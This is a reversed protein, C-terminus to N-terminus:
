ATGIFNCNDGYNRNLVTTTMKRFHHMLISKVRMEQLIHYLIPWFLAFISEEVSM